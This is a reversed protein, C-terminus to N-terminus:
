LDETLLLLTYHVSCACRARPIPHSLGVQPVARTPRRLDIQAHRGVGSPLLLHVFCSLRKYFDRTQQDTFKPSANSLQPSDPPTSSHRHPVLGLGGREVCGEEHDGRPKLNTPARLHPTRHIAQQSRKEYRSFQSLCPFLNELHQKAPKSPKRSPISQALHHPLAPQSCVGVESIKRAREQDQCNFYLERALNLPRPVPSGKQPRYLGDFRTWGATIATNSARHHTSECVSVGGLQLAPYAYCGSSLNCLVCDNDLDVPQQKRTDTSPPCHDSTRSKPFEIRQQILRSAASQELFGALQIRWTTPVRPQKGMDFETRPKRGPTWIWLKLERGQETEGCVHRLEAALAMTM